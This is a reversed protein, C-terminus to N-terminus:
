LLNLAICAYFVVILMSSVQEGGLGVYLLLLFLLTAWQIAALEDPM